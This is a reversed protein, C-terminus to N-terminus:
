EIRACVLIKVFFFTGWGAKGFKVFKKCGRLHGFWEEADFFYFLGVAGEVSELGVSELPYLFAPPLGSSNVVAHPALPAPCDLHRALPVSIVFECPVHHHAPEEGHLDSAHVIQLREDRLVSKVAPLNCM